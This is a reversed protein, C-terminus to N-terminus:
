AEVKRAIPPRGRRRRTGLSSEAKDEPPLDPKEPPAEAALWEFFLRYHDSCVDLHTDDRDIHIHAYAPEGCKDCVRM